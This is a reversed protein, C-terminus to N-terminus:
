HLSALYTNAPSQVRLVPLKSTLADADMSRPTGCRCAPLPALPHDTASQIKLQISDVVFSDFPKTRGRAAAEALWCVRYGCSWGDQQLPGNPIALHWGNWTLGPSAAMMLLKLSNLAKDPPSLDFSDCFIVLRRRWDVVLLVWHYGHVNLPLLWKRAPQQMRMMDRLCRQCAKDCEPWFVSLVLVDRTAVSKCFLDISQDTLWDREPQKEAPMVKKPLKTFTAAPRKSLSLKSGTSSPVKNTTATPTASTPPINSSSRTAPLKTRVTTPLRDKCGIKGEPTKPKTLHSFLHKAFSSSASRYNFGRRATKRKWTEEQDSFDEPMKRKSPPPPPIIM